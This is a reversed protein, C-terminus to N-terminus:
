LESMYEEIQKETFILIRNRNKYFEKYWLMTKKIAEDYNYLPKWGLKEKSKTIDLGLFSSEYLKDEQEIVYKTNINWISLCKEVTEKVTLQKYTDPGFNYAGSYNIPNESVVKGLTLYGSLCDLVHQWPRTANPFRLTISEENIIANIIDPILRDESWDGGGIVNGGRATAVGIKEKFFSNYYSETVIESCAKSASYPDYGGLPENEIFFKRQKNNNKYCKDSTVNVISCNLGLEHVNQLLSVTGMINSLFTDYPSKYSKRVLSQAALHFIIDPKVEQLFNKFNGKFECSGIKTNTTKSLKLSSFLLNNLYLVESYVSVEAGLMNLWKCLWSGKFGFGGTVLVKKGKYFNNLM